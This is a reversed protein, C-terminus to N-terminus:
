GSLLFDHFGAKAIHLKKCQLSFFEEKDKADHFFRRTVADGRLSKNYSALLNTLPIKL